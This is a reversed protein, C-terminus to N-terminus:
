VLAAISIEPQILDIFTIKVEVGDESCFFIDSTRCNDNQPYLLFVKTANYKKGYAYMQYMDAQSIGYNRANDSLLKWKTDMVITGNVSTLVIDPRLGFAKNPSDFLSYRADQTIMEINPPICGRLKSAIYSEFVKEMPFLLAVAVESGVFTTFSNGRLFVKCWSLARGYHSMSRDIACKTIDAEYDKSATVGEFSGLLRSINLRNRGDTTQRLLLQLTSQLLRNEPRNVSWEDYKVFFRDKTFYNSKIHQSVNLKGKFFRENVELSNYASKLGQKVLASVEAVFMSIFIEFLNLRDIKLNSENFDKFSVDRLTKLMELFIQKTRVENIGNGYIKPLIEIVTGDKMTILGVYNRATITKGVGRKVSLSLLEMAETSNESCNALIFSELADFTHVPLPQYGVISLDGRVFGGYETITYTKTSSRM